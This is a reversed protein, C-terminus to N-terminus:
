VAVIRNEAAVGAVRDEADVSATRNEAGVAVTRSPGPEGLQDDSASLADAGSEDASMSGSVPVAGAMDATESGAEDTSLSGAVLVAGSGVVADAGVESGGLVGAVRVAGSMAAVDSGTETAAVSGAIAAVQSGSGVFTDSGTEAAVLAGTIFVTGSAGFADAGAENAGFTGAVAVQGVALAADTGTEAVTLAGSAPVSGAMASVDAGAEAAGLSGSVLVAGSGAFDDGGAETAALAGTAAAGATAETIELGYGISDTSTSTWTLSTAPSTMDYSVNLRVNTAPALDYIETCGTPQTWTSGANGVGLAVLISTAAYASMTVSPDGAANVNSHFNSSIAGTGSIEFVECGDQTPTGAATVTVTRASPSGGVDQYYIAGCIVGADIGSGTVATWTGGLNDSITPVAATSGRAACLAFIRVNASPTFSASTATTATAGAAILHTPTGIAM